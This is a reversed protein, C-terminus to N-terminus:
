VESYPTVDKRPPPSIPFLTDAQIAYMEFPKAGSYKKQGISIVNIGKRKLGVIRACPKQIFTDVTISHTTAGPHELLYDYVKREQPTLNEM